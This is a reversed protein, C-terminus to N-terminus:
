KSAALIVIQRVMLWSCGGPSVFAVGSGSLGTHADIWSEPGEEVLSCPGLLTKLLAGEGPGARSGRSFLFAGEQVMCPLNPM